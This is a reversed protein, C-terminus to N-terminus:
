KMGGSEKVRKQTMESEYEDGDYHCWKQGAILVSFQINWQM